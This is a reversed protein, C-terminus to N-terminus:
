EGIYSGESKNFLVIDDKKVDIDNKFWKPKPVLKPLAYKLWTKGWSRSVDIKPRLLREIRGILDFPGVPCRNNNHGM